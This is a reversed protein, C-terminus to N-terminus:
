ADTKESGCSDRGMRNTQARFLHREPVVTEDREMELALGAPRCDIDMNAQWARCRSSGRRHRRHHRPGTRQRNGGHRQLRHDQQPALCGEGCDSARPGVQLNYFDIGDLEVVTKFQEWPISRSGDSKHNPKRGLSASKQNETTRFLRTKTPSCTHDPNSNLNRTCALRDGLSLLPLHVDFDAVSEDGAVVDIQPFSNQHAFPTTKVHLLLDVAHERIRPLFRSFM